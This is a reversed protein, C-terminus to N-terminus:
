WGKDRDRRIIATSDPMKGLAKRRRQIRAVLDSLDDDAGLERALLKRALDSMSTREKRARMKLRRHLEEDLMLNVRKLSVTVCDAKGPDTM